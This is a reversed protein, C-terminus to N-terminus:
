GPKRFSNFAWVVAAVALVPVVWPLLGLAAQCWGICITV